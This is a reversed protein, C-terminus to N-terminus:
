WTTPFWAVRAIGIVLGASTFGILFVRRRHFLGVLLALTPLSGIAGISFRTAARVDVLDVCRAPWSEFGRGTCDGITGNPLAVAIWLGVVAVVVPLLM